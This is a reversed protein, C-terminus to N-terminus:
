RERFFCRVAVRNGVWLKPWNSRNGNIETQETPVSPLDLNEGHVLERRIEIARIGSARLWDVPWCATLKLLAPGTQTVTAEIEYMTM